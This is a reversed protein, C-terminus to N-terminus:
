IQIRIGRAAFSYSQPHAYRTMREVIDGVATPVGVGLDMTAVVALVTSRKRTARSVPQLDGEVAVPQGTCSIVRMSM